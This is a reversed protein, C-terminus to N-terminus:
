GVVMTGAYAPVWRRGRSREATAMERGDDGRLARGCGFPQYPPSGHINTCIATIEYLPAQEAAGANSKSNFAVAVAVEVEVEVEVAFAKAGESRTVKILWEAATFRKKARAFFRLGFFRKEVASHSTL